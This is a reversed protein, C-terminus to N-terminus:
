SSASEEADRQCDLCRPAYPIARLREASIAGECEECVGYTGRSIRDLARDVEQIQEGVTEARTWSLDQEFADSAVEASHLPMTSSGGQNSGSRRTTEGLREMLEALLRKREALLAELERLDEPSLAPTANSKRRLRTTVVTRYRPSDLTIRPRARKEGLSGGLKGAGVIEVKKADM